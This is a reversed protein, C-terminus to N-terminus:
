TGPKAPLYRPRRANALCCCALWAVTFPVGARRKALGAGGDGAARRSMEAGLTGGAPALIQPLLLLAESAFGFATAPSDFTGAARPWNKPITLIMAQSPQWYQAVALVAELKTYAIDLLYGDKKIDCTVVGM